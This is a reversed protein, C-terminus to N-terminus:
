AGARSILEDALTDGIEDVANELRKAENYATKCADCKKYLSPNYSSDLMVKFIHCFDDFVAYCYDGDQDECFEPDDFIMLEKVSGAINIETM